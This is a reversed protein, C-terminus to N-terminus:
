KNKVKKLLNSIDEELIKRIEEKSKELLIKANKSFVFVGLLGGFILEKNKEFALYGLRRLKNRKVASKVVIKPVVFSVKPRFESNKLKFKFSLNVSNLFSGDKFVEEVDKKNARNKKKLM